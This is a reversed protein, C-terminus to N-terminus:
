NFGKCIYAIMCKGNDKYYVYTKFKKVSRSAKSIVLTCPFPEYM